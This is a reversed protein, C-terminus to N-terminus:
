AHQGFRGVADGVMRHVCWHAYSRALFRGLWRALGRPPLDYDIFVRLMSGRAKPSLEFGLRYSGIVVLRAEVTQWAKRLPPKRETVVEELRLDMGLLRGEMTVRSGVARGGLPDMSVRMRLGAMMPSRKEMHASLARFDDLYVFAQEATADLVASREHHLPFSM